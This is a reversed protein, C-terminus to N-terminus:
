CRIPELQPLDGSTRLDPKHAQIYIGNQLLVIKRSQPKRGYVFDELFPTPMIAQAAIQPCSKLSGSTAEASCVDDAELAAILREEIDAVYSRWKKKGHKELGRIGVYAEFTGKKYPL